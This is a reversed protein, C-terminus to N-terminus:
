PIIITLIFVLSSFGHNEWVCESKEQWKTLSNFDAWLLWAAGTTEKVGISSQCTRDHKDQINHNNNCSWTVCVSGKSPFQDGMVPTHKHTHGKASTNSQMVALSCFLLCFFGVVVWSYGCLLFRESLMSQCATVSCLVCTVRVFGWITKLILMQRMSIFLLAPCIQPRQNAAAPQVSWFLFSIVIWELKEVRIHQM